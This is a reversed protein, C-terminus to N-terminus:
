KVSAEGRAPILAGVPCEQACAELSERDGHHPFLTIRTGLGRHAFRFVGIGQERACRVCRGCLVCRNRDYLISGLARELPERTSLDRLGRVKLKVKLALAIKQLQCRGNAHCNKCDVHHSSLLLRLASRQLRRVLETDTRVVMGDRVLLTCSTVPTPKGEVEVFCLRCGAFADDSGARYCLHPIFIGNRLAVGLVREGGQAQVERDDIIINVGSM